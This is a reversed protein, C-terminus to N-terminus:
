GFLLSALGAALGIAATGAIVRGLGRSVSEAAIKHLARPEFLVADPGCLGDAGRVGLAERAIESVKGRVPDVKRSVVAPHTCFPGALFDCEVCPSATPAVERRVERLRSQALAVRDMGGTYRVPRSCDDRFRQM